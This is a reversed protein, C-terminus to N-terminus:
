VESGETPPLSLLGENLSTLLRSVHRKRLFESRFVLFEFCGYFFRFLDSQGNELMISLGQSPYLFLKAALLNTGYGIITLRSFPFDAPLASLFEELPVDASIPVVAYQGSADLSRLLSDRIADVQKLNKPHPKLYIISHTETSAPHQRRIFLAAQQIALHPLPSSSGKRQRVVPSIVQPQLFTSAHFEEPPLTQRLAYFVRALRLRRRRLIKLSRLWNRHCTKLLRFRVKSIRYRLRSLNRLFQNKQALYPFLLLVYEHQDSGIAVHHGAMATASQAMSLKVDACIQLLSRLRDQHCSSVSVVHAQVIAKMYPEAQYRELIKRRQHRAKFTYLRPEVGISEGTEVLVPPRLQDVFAVSLRHDIRPTIVLDPTPISSWSDDIFLIKCRYGKAECWPVLYTAILELHRTNSANRNTCIYISPQKISETKIYALASLVTIFQFSFIIVVPSSPDAM